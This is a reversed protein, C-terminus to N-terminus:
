FNGHRSWYLFLAFLAAAITSLLNVADNNLWRRRELTAGLFSDVFMGLVGAAAVPLWWHAAIIGTALAVTAVTLAGTVGALSGLVSIGGDTGVPVQRFDIILYASDSVAQGVESSTTDAAAEALAASAAVLWASAHGTFLGVLAAAAAVGINAVVQSASRGSQGEATGLQRKRRHGLRTSIWTMLFVAVLVAFAGPGGALFLLFALVGGAVAGSLTVARLARASIAFAATFGVAWLVRRPPVLLHLQAGLALWPIICSAGAWGPPHHLWETLTKWPSRNPARSGHM